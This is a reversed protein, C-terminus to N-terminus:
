DMTALNVSRDAGDWLACESHRLVWRGGCSQPLVPSWHVFARLLRIRDVIRQRLHALKDQNFRELSFITNQHRFTCKSKFADSSKILTSGESWSPFARKVTFATAARSGGSVVLM